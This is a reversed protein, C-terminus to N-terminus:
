ELINSRIKTLMYQIAQQSATRVAQKRKEESQIESTQVFYEAFGRVVDNYIIQDTDSSHVSFHFSIEIRYKNVTGNTNIILPVQDEETKIEIKFSSESSSTKFTDNLLNKIEYSTENEYQIYYNELKIIQDSQKYIPQFGCGILYYMLVILLYIKLVKNM